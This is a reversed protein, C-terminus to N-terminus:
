SNLIESKSNISQFLIKFHALLAKEAFKGCDAAGPNFDRLDAM